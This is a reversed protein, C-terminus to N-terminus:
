TLPHCMEGEEIHHEVHWRMEDATVRSEYLWQLRPGIPFYIFQKRPIRRNEVDERVLRTTSCTRCRSANATRGLLDYM